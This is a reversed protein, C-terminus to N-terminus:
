RAIPPPSPLPRSPKRPAPAILALIVGLVGFTAWAPWGIVTVCVNALQPPFNSQVALKADIGFLMLIQELSRIVLEGHKELTSVVDAGLLMLAIVILVLSLWRIIFM